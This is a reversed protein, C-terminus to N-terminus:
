GLRGGLGSRRGGQCLRGAGLAVTGKSRRVLNETGGTATGLKQGPGGATRLRTEPDQSRGSSRAWDESELGTGKRGM